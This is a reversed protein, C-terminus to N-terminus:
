DPYFNFETDIKGEVGDKVVDAYGRNFNEAKDFTMETAFEGKKNIYSWEEKVGIDRETKIVAAYGDHFLHSGKFQKDFLRNGSKDIYIDNDEDSRTALSVITVGDIFDYAVRYQCPIVENGNKDVFGYKGNFGKEKRVRGLGDSFEFADVYKAEVVIKGDEDKYGWLGNEEFPYIYKDEDPEATPTSLYVSSTQADWDVNIGLQESVERLPIYTNDNIAVIPNKFNKQVNNLFIKFGAEYATWNQAAYATCTVAAAAIVAICLERKKKM